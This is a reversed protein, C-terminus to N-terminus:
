LPKCCPSLGHRVVRECDFVVARHAADQQRAWRLAIGLALLHQVFEHVGHVGRTRVVGDTDHHDAALAVVERGAVIELLGLGLAGVERYLLTPRILLQAVKIVRHADPIEGLGGDGM